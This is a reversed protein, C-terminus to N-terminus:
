DIKCSYSFCIKALDFCVTFKFGLVSTREVYTDNMLSPGNLKWPPSHKKELFFIRIGLTASFINQNQHLFFFIQNLTKTMYGLTLYQFFNRAKRSLFFIYELERTTWFFIESRFFGGYDGRGGRCTLHDTGLWICISSNSASSMKMIM